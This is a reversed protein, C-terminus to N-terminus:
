RVLTQACHLSNELADRQEMGLKVKDEIERSDVLLKRKMQIFYQYDGVQEETLVARLVGVVQEGRRELSGQLQKADEKQGM